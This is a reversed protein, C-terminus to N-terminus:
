SYVQGEAAGSEKDELSTVCVPNPEVLEPSRVHIEKIFRRSASGDMQAAIKSYRSLLDVLFAFEDEGAKRRMATGTNQRSALFAVRFTGMAAKM